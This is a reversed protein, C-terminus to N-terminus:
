SCERCQRADGDLGFQELKNLDLSAISPRAFPIVKFTSCFFIYIYIYLEKANMCVLMLITKDSNINRTIQEMKHTAKLTEM